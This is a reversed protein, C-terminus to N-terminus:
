AAVRKYLIGGLIVVFISSILLIAFDLLIGLGSPVGLMLSRLGDIVYTLPNIHSLFKLWDPMLEIPYIANSAFFLPMTLLQGIGMFRERTKVLCALILSFTSFFISGLIVFVFVGAIHLADWHISVGLIIALLYIIIVIPIARAGASLAKGLVIATRPTPTTLIKQILGLDREWIIAIGSFISVFLVSQALIGPTMFSLYDTHFSQIPMKAFVQGFILLWLAPQVSRTFVELPDHIIKRIELELIVLTKRIFDFM